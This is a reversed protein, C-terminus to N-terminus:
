KLEHYDIQSESIEEASWGEVVMTSLVAAYEEMRRCHLYEALCPKGEISSIFMNNKHLDSDLLRDNLIRLGPCDCDCRSRNEFSVETWVPVQLLSKVVALLEGGPLVIIGNLNRYSKELTNLLGRIDMRCSLSYTALTVNNTDIDTIFLGHFYPHSLVSASTWHRKLVQLM